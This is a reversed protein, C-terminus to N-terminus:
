ILIKTKYQIRIITGLVMFLLLLPHVCMHICACMWGDVGVCMYVCVVCVCVVCVCVYVCVYVCEHMRVMVCTLKTFFVPCKDRSM